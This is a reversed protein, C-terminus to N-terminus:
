RPAARPAPVYMTSTIYVIRQSLSYYNMRYCPQTASTAKSVLVRWRGYGARRLATSLERGTM